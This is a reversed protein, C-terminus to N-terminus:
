DLPRPDLPLPFHGGPSAGPENFWERGAVLAFLPLPLRTAARRLRAASHRSSLQSVHAALADRKQRAFPRVDVRHTIERSPTFLAPPPTAPSGGSTADAAATTANGGTAANGDTAANASTTADARARRLRRPLRGLRGALRAAAYFLEVPERPVTAELVVPRLDDGLLEIARVGVQHVRVHDRHGYGGQADYTLLADAREARLLEALRGAAEDLDARAFRVRGAPDPYFLPGHGSDAYGLCEVRAVGLVACSAALEALRGVAWPDPGGDAPSRAPGMDGDTAVVVVVRHGSAAARALTGGTWLVEDDPHAHLAVVTAM